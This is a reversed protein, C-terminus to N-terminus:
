RNLPGSNTATRFQKSKPIAILKRTLQNGARPSRVLISGRLLQPHFLNFTSCVQFILIVNMIECQLKIQLLRPSTHIDERFVRSNLYKRM